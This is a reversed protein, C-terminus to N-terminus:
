TVLLVHSLDVASSFEEWKFMFHIGLPQLRKFGALIKRLRGQEM